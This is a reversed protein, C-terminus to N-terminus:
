LPVSPECKELCLATIRIGDPGYVKNQRKTKRVKLHFFSTFSCGLVARM